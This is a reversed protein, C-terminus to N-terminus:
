NQLFNSIKIMVASSLSLLNQFVLWRTECVCLWINWYFWHVVFNLFFVQNEEAPYISGYETTYLRHTVLIKSHLSPKKSKLSKSLYDHAFCSLFAGCPFIELNKEQSTKFFQMTFSFNLGYIVVNLANENCFYSVKKWTKFFLLTSRGM